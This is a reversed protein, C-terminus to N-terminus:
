QTNVDIEMKLKKKKKKFKSYRSIYVSLWLFCRETAGPYGTSVFYNLQLLASFNSLLCVVKDPHLFIVLCSCTVPYWIDTLVMFKNRITLLLHWPLMPFITLVATGCWRYTDKRSPPFLLPPLKTGKQDHLLLVIHQHKWFTSCFTYLFTQRFVTPM